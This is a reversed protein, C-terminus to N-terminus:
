RPKREPVIEITFSNEKPEITVLEKLVHPSPPSGPVIPPHVTVQCPGAIGGSVKENGFITFLEFRGDERINSMMTTGPDSSARFEIMGETIPAGGKYAVTGKVPYTPPLPIRPSSCGMLGSLLFGALMVSRLICWFLTVSDM